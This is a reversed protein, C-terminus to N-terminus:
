FITLRGSKSLIMTLFLLIINVTGIHLLDSTAVKKGQLTITEEKVM